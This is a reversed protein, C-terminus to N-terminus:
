GKSCPQGHVTFDTPEAHPPSSSANFGVQVSRGAPVRSNWSLPTATVAAGTRTWTASWGETIRQAGPWIRNLIREPDAAHASGPTFTAAVVALALAASARLRRRAPFLSRM